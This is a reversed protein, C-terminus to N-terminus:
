QTPQPKSEAPKEIVPPSTKERIANILDSGAGTTVLEKEIEPTLSFTLGRDKVAETIIKNKEAPEAKKSRLAVLVDALSLRRNPALVSQVVLGISLVTLLTLLVLSFSISKMKRYAICRM